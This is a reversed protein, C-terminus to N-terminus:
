EAENYLGGFLENAIIDFDFYWKRGEKIGSIQGNRAADQIDKVPVKILMSLQKTTLKHIDANDDELYEKAIFSKINEVSNLVKNFDIIRDDHMRSLLINLYRYQSNIVDNKHKTNEIVDAKKCFDRVFVESVYELIENINEDAFRVIDVEESNMSYIFKCNIFPNRVASGNNCNIMAIINTMDNYITDVACGQGSEAKFKMNDYIIEIYTTLAINTSNTIFIVNDIYDLEEDFNVLSWVKHKRDM